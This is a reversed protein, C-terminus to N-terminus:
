ARFAAWRLDDQFTVASRYREDPDAALATLLVEDLQGPLDPTLDTPPAPNAGPPQGTLM